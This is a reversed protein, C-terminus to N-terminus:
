SKKTSKKVGKKVSLKVQAVTKKKASTKIPASIREVLITCETVLAALGGVIALPAVLVMGIVGFTLPFSALTDGDKSKITIRRINGQRILEKVKSVVQKGTVKIEEVTANQSKNM